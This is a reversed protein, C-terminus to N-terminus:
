GTYVLLYSAPVAGGNERGRENAAFIDNLVESINGRYQAM